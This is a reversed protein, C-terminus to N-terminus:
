DLCSAFDSMRCIDQKAVGKRVSRMTNGFDRFWVNAEVWDIEGDADDGNTKAYSAVLYHELADDYILGGGCDIIAQATGTFVAVPVAILICQLFPTNV